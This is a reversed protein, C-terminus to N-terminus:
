AVQALGRSARSQEARRDTSWQVKRQLKSNHSAKHQKQWGHVTAGPLPDLGDEDAYDTCTATGAVPEPDVPMTAATSAQPRRRRQPLVAAQPIRYGHAPPQTSAGAVGATKESPGNAVQQNRLMDAFSPRSTSVASDAGPPAGWRSPPRSPMPVPEKVEEAPTEAETKIELKEQVGDQPEVDEDSPDDNDDEELATERCDSQDDDEGEVKKEQLATEQLGGEGEDCRRPVQLAEAVSTELTSDMPRAAALDAAAAEPLMLRRLWKAQFPWFQSLWLAWGCLRPLLGTIASSATAEQLAM